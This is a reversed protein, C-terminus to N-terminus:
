PRSGKLVPATRDAVGDWARGSLPLRSQTRFLRRSPAADVDVARRRPTVEDVGSLRHHSAPVPLAELVTESSSGAATM